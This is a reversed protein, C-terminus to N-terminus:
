SRTRAQLMRVEEPMCLPQLSCKPCRAALPGDLPPPVTEQTSLAFARAITNLTQQRLEPTFDIQVRRRSGIYYIYGHSIPPKDPQREELCLAQACLQVSDNLWQGQRGHKYEVPVLMGDQEEIVDAFGSLHLSESFLYLHTTQIEGERTTEKGQSHVHQHQLTGELVYENVLMDCQVYEYYFRRPCYHLTNLSSISVSDPVTRTTM